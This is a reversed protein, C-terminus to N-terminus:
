NTTKPNNTVLPPVGQFIGGGTAQNKVKKSTSPGPQSIALTNM